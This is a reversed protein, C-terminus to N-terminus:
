KGYRTAGRMSKVFAEIGKQTTNIAAPKMFPRAGMKKTGGELMGAHPADNIVELKLEERKIKFSSILVGTASAPPQGAISAVHGGRKKGGRPTTKILRQADKIILKGWAELGRAAGLRLQTVCARGKWSVKVPSAAM